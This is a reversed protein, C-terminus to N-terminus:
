REEMLSSFDLEEMGKTLQVLACYEGRLAPRGQLLWCLGRARHIADGLPASQLDRLVDHLFERTPLPVIKDHLAKLGAYRLLTPSLEQAYGRLHDAVEADDSEGQNDQRELKVLALWGAVAARIQKEIGLNAFAKIQRLEEIVSPDLLMSLAEDCVIKERVSQRAFEDFTLKRRQCERMVAEHLETPMEVIVVEEDNSQHAAPRRSTLRATKTQARNRATDGKRAIRNQKKM